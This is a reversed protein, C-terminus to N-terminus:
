ELIEPKDFQIISNGKIHINQQYLRNEVDIFKLRITLKLDNIKSKGRLQVEISVSQGKDVREDDKYQPYINFDRSSKKFDLLRM